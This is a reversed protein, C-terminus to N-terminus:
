EAPVCVHTRLDRHSQPLCAIVCYVPSCLNSLTQMELLDSPWTSQGAVSSPRLNFHRAFM